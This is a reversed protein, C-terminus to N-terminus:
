RTVMLKKVAYNTGYTDMPVQDAPVALRLGPFRRFLRPLVTSLEARAINQGLCQHVGYGFALHRTMRRDFDPTDPNDFARPDRNATPMAVVVLEGRRIREGGIELDELAVRGLGFQVITLYRLLEEVAPRTKEPQDLFQRRQQPHTLLTLASLGLMAATTDHGAFLLLVGMGVLQAETLIPDKEDAIAILDALLGETDGSSRKAAVLTTIYDILWKAGAGREERSLGTDMMRETAHHFGERDAAPVGLLECIVLCPVPLALAEVLDFTDPGAAIAALHEDVIRDLYPQLRQAVAKPTFRGAILRRYLSHDPEDMMVFTPDFPAEEAGEEAPVDHRPRRASMRPDSFVQSGEEFRTVLWGTTGNPFRVRTLPQEERLQHYEAPPDLLSDRHVPMCPLTENM